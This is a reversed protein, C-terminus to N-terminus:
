LLPSPIYDNPPPEPRPPPKHEDCYYTLPEGARVVVFKRCGEHLCDITVHGKGAAPENPEDGEPGGPGGHQGRTRRERWKDMVSVTVYRDVEVAGAAVAARRKSETLDYHPMSSKDQFWSRKLGLRSAFAHLKELDPDAAFMHCAKDHQWKANRPCRMLRDVMVTAMEAM